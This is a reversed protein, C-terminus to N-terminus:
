SYSRPAAQFRLDSATVSNQFGVPHPNHTVGRPAEAADLPNVTIWRWRVARTLAGSLCFHIKRISATSLPKCVHPRCRDTCEHAEGPRM